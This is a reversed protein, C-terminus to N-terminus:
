LYGEKKLYARLRERTRHLKVSVTNKRLGYARAITELSEAHFYRRLFLDCEARPLSRLFRNIAEQLQAASVESEPSVGGPLCEALEDLVADMGCFRKAATGERLRNCSLNRSIRAFYLKLDQPRNPPISQWAKLWTDSLVEEVDQPSRLMRAALSRCYGGYRRQSETIARENRAFFLGIIEEDTM